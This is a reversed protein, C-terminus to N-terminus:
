VEKGIRKLDQLMSVLNEQEIQDETETNDKVPRGRKATPGKAEKNEWVRDIIMKAAQFKNKSGQEKLEHRIVKIAETKFKLDLERRWRSIYPHFWKCALLMEWHEWNDFYANAFEYETVDEMEMYLRYLSPYGEHDHDKLSYLVTSKDANCM